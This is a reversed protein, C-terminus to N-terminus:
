TSKGSGPPMAVLLRKIDGKALADLHLILAESAANPQYARNAAGCYPWAVEVFRRFSESAWWTAYAELHEAAQEAAEAKRKEAASLPKRRKGAVQPNPCRRTVIRGPQLRYLRLQ